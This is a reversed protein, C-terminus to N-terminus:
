LRVWDTVLKASATTCLLRVVGRPVPEVIFFGLDDVEVSAIVGGDGEIRVKGPSPPVFQGVVRDALVEVEVSRLETTFVLVRGADPEGRTTAPEPVLDSDFTLTATLLEQDLTRWTFSGRGLARVRTVDGEVARLAEGLEHLLDEDTPRSPTRDEDYANV